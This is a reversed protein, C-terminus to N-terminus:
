AIMAFAYYNHNISYSASFVAHALSNSGRAFELAIVRTAWPVGSMQWLHSIVLVSDWSSRNRHHDLNMLVTYTNFIQILAPAVMASSAYVKGMVTFGLSM